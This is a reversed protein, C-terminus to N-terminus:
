PKFKRSVSVGYLMLTASFLSDSMDYSWGGVNILVMVWRDLQNLCAIFYEDM